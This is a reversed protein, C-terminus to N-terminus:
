GYKLSGLESRGDLRKASVASLPKGWYIKTGPFLEGYMQRLSFYYQAYTISSITTDFKVLSLARREMERVHKRETDKLVQALAGSRFSTDQWMKAAMNVCTLWVNSWNRSTITLTSMGLLRYMYVLAIINVESMYHLNRQTWDIFYLIYLYIIDKNEAGLKIKEEFDKSIGSKRDFEPFICSNHDFSIPLGETTRIESELVAAVCRITVDNNPDSLSSQDSRSSGTSNYKRITDIERVVQTSPRRDNCVNVRTHSGWDKRYNPHPQSLFKKFTLRARAISYSCHFEEGISDTTSAVRHTARFAAVEENDDFANKSFLLQSPSLNLLARKDGGEFARYLDELGPSTSDNGEEIKMDTSNSSSTKEHSNLDVLDEVEVIEDMADLEETADDGSSFTRPRKTPAAGETLMLDQHLVYDSELFIADGEDDDGNVTLFSALTESNNHWPDM